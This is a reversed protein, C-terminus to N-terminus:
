YKTVRRAGVIFRSVFSASNSKGLEWFYFFVERFPRHSKGFWLAFICIIEILRAEALFAM